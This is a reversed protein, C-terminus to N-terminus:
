AKSQKKKVSVEWSFRLIMNNQGICYEPTGPMEPFDDEWAYGLRAMGAEMDPM